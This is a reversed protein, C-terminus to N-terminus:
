EVAAGDDNCGVTMWDRDIPVEKGAPPLIVFVRRHVLPHRSALGQDRQTSHRVLQLHLIKAGADVPRLHLIRTSGNGRKPRTWCEKQRRRWGHGSDQDSVVMNKLGKCRSTHSRHMIHRMSYCALRVRQFPYLAPMVMIFTRDLVFNLDKAGDRM